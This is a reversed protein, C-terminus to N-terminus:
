TPDSPCLSLELQASLSGAQQKFLEVTSLNAGLVLTSILVIPALIEFISSLPSRRTPGSCINSTSTSALDDLAVHVRTEQTSRCGIVHRALRTSCHWAWGASSWGSGSSYLPSSARESGSAAMARRPNPPPRPITWCPSAVWRPATALSRRQSARVSYLCTRWPTCLTCCTIYIDSRLVFTLTVRTEGSYRAVQLYIVRYSL